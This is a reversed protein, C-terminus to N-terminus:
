SFKLHDYNKARIDSKPAYYTSISLISCRLDQSNWITMINESPHGIWACWMDLHEFNFLPLERSNWITMVKWVSTQNLFMIHRSALFQVIFARSFNLHDYCKVRIDSEPVSYSSVSSISCRFSELVKFPWLKESAHRIWACLIDLHELNSLSLEWSIWITM